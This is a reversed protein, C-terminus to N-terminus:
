RAASGICQRYSAEARRRQTAADFGNGAADDVASKAVQQCWSDPRTAQDAALPASVVETRAPVSRPSESQESQSAESQESSGLGTYSMAHDWDADTCGCLLVAAFGMTIIRINM